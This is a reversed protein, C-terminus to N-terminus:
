KILEVSGSHQLKQLPATRSLEDAASQEIQEHKKKPLSDYECRQKIATHQGRLAAQQSLGTRDTRDASCNSQKFQDIASMHLAAAGIPELLEV